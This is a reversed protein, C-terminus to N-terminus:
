GQLDPPAMFPLLAVCLRVPLVIVYMNPAEPSPYLAGMCYLTTVNNDGLRVQSSATAMANAGIATANNYSSSNVDANFGLATNNNGTINNFLSNNGVATNRIGNTIATPNNNYLANVGIAVNDSTMVLSSGYGQQMLAQYGMATNNSAAFNYFLARVGNAINYNGTTNNFLAQMGNATNAVGTINKYLAQYGNATNSYGTTNYLAQYGNATNNGGTINKYLAQYGNATNAAGATNSNGAGIGVFINSTNATGSAGHYKLVENDNIFYGNTANSININGNVDLMMGALPTTTGIGVQVNSFIGPLDRGLYILGDTSSIANPLPSNIAVTNLGFRAIGFIRLSDAVIKGKVEFPFQPNDTGIGVKVTSINGHKDVAYLKDPKTKDWSQSFAVSAILLLMIAIVFSFVQKKM